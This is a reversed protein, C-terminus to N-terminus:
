NEQTISLTYPHSGQALDGVYISYTGAEWVGPVELEGNSLGDSMVCRNVPGTIWLTPQGQGQLQLRLATPQNVVIVQSPTGSIFGCQSSQGGGSSGNVTVPSALPTQVPNSHATTAITLTAALATPFVFWNIQRKM